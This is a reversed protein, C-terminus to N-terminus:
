IAPPHSLIARWNGEKREAIKYKYSKSSHCFWFKTFHGVCTASPTLKHRKPASVPVSHAFILLATRDVMILQM